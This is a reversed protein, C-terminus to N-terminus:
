QVNLWVPSGERYLANCSSPRPRTPRCPKEGDTLGTALPSRRRSCPPEAVSRGIEGARAQCLGQQELEKRTDEKPADRTVEYETNRDARTM